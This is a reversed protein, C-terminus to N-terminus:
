RVIFKYSRNQFPFIKDFAKKITEHSALNDSVVNKHIKLDTTPGVFRWLISQLYHIKSMVFM